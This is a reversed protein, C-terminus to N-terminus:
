GWGAIRGFIEEKGVFDRVTWEYKRKQRWFAEKTEKLVIKRCAKVVGMLTKTKGRSLLEM